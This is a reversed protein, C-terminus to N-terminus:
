KTNRIHGDAIDVFVHKRKGLPIRLKGKRANVERCVVSFGQQPAPEALLNVRRKLTTSWLSKGDSLSWASVNYQTGVVVRDKSCHIAFELSRTPVTEQPATQASVNLEHQEDGVLLRFAAEYPGAGNEQGDLSIALQVRRDEVEGEAVCSCPINTWSRSAPERAGDSPTPANVGTATVVLDQRDEPDFKVEVWAGKRLNAVHLTDFPESIDALYTGSGKPHVRVTLEYVWRDNIRSNTQQVSVIQASAPVGNARLQAEDDSLLQSLERGFSVYLVVGIVCILAGSTVWARLVSRKTQKAEAAAAWKKEERREAKHKHKRETEQKREVQQKREAELEKASKLKDTYTLTWRTMTRAPHLRKWLEDPLFVSAQCYPCSTTRENDTGITLGGSCSPCSMVVPQPSQVAIEAELGAQDSTTQSDGGFVQLATPLLARLWSPAPYTPCGTGCAPCPITTTAGVHNLHQELPIAADCTSCQPDAGSFTATSYSSGMQQMGEGALVLEKHIRRLPTDKMCNDCHALQSPGNIPVPAACHDCTVSMRMAVHKVTGRVSEWANQPPAM